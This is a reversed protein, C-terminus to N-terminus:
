EIFKFSLAIKGAELCIDKGIKHIAVNNTRKYEPESTHFSYM